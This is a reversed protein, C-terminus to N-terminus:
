SARGQSPHRAIAEDRTIPFPGDADRCVGAHGADNKCFRTQAWSEVHEKLCLGDAFFSRLEGERLKGINRDAALHVFASLFMRDMFHLHIKPYQGQSMIRLGGNELVQTEEYGHEECLKVIPHRTKARASELLEQTSRIRQPNM